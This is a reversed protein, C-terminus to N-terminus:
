QFEIEEGFKNKPKNYFYQFYKTLECGIEQDNICHFKWMIDGNLYLREVYGVMNGNYFHNIGFLKKNERDHYSEWYGHREKQDSSNCQNIKIEM